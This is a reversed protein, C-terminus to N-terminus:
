GVELRAFDSATVRGVIGSNDVVVIYRAGTAVAQTAAHHCPMTPPMCLLSASVWPEVTAPTPFLEAQLAESQAFVGIPGRDPVVLVGRVRASKLRALAGDVSESPAVTVVDPTMLSEITASVQIDAIRRVLAWSTVGGALREKDVVLVRHVHHDRMARAADSLSGQVSVTVLSKTMVRSVTHDPLMLKRGGGGTVAPVAELRLLDSQTIVGLPRNDDDVVPLGTYGHTHM